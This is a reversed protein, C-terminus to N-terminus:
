GVVPKEGLFQSFRMLYGDPDQVLFQREGLLVTDQRYWREQMEIFLPYAHRRLSQLLPEISDVEMQLNIGRGYPYELAGTTWTSDIWVQEIMLQIKQYSLFAFLDEPRSYEVHFGLTEVYFALSKEFNSVSLEPVLANFEM